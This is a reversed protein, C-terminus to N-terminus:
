SAFSSPGKWWLGRYDAVIMTETEKLRATLEDVVREKENRDM